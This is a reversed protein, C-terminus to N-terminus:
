LTWEAPWHASESPPAGIAIPPWPGASFYHVITTRSIDEEHAGADQISSPHANSLSPREIFPMGAADAWQLLERATANPSRRLTSALDASELPVGRDGQEDLSMNRGGPSRGRKGVRTSSGDGKLNAKKRETGLWNSHHKAGYWELGPTRQIKACLEKFAVPDRIEGEAVLAKRETKLYGPLSHRNGPM